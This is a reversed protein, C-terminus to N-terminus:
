WNHRLAAEFEDQTQGTPLGRKQRNRLWGRYIKNDRQDISYGCGREQRDYVLLPRPYDAKIARLVEYPGKTPQITWGSQRLYEELDPLMGHKVTIRDKM